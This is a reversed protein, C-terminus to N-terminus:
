AVEATLRWATSLYRDIVVEAVRPDAGLPAAVPIVAGDGGGTGAVTGAVRTPVLGPALFWSAVAIRRAGTSRLRSIAAGVSPEASSTGFAALAGLWGHQGAWGSAVRQVAANAEPHSSGIAALVVGLGPDELPGAVEALRDLAADALRRDGGLVDAVSVRLGPHRRTARALAGPLDVKAHFARGLLLPVVVAHRHGDGAV